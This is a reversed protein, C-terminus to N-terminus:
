LKNRIKIFYNVYNSNDEKLTDDSVAINKLFIFFNFVKESTERSDSKYLIIYDLMTIQKKNIFWFILTSQVLKELKNIFNYIDVSPYFINPSFDGPLINSPVIEYPDKFVAFRCLENTQKNLDIYRLSIFEAYLQKQKISKDSTYGKAFNYSLVANKLEDIIILTNM